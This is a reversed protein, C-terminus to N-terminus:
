QLSRVVVNDFEAKCNNTQLAIKGSKMNPDINGEVVKVEDVYFELKSDTMVAKLKYTKGIEFAPADEKKILTSSGTNIRKNITYEADGSYFTSYALAYRKNENEFATLIAISSNETSPRGPNREIIKVDAEVSYNSWSAEGAYTICTWDRPSQYAKSTQNVTWAAGTAIAWGDANGDDFNDEFLIGSPPPTPEPTSTPPPTPIVDPIEPPSKVIINDYEAICNNTQLGIMGSKLNPDINGEVVKVGDVYFELKSDTMVATLNYTRGVEFAPADERKIFTSSETDIRKNISYEADGSYFTSYALAYRTKYDRFAVLIGISSTATAGGASSEPNKELIKVDASVSYNSWSPDGAYQIQTYSIPSQYAKTDPNVTWPQGFATQFGGNTGDDFNHQYLVGIPPTPKPIALGVENSLTTLKNLSEWLFLKAYCDTVDSPLDAQATINNDGPVLESQTSLGCSYLKNNKYVALILKAPKNSETNNTISVDATMFNSQPLKDISGDIENGDADKFTTNNIELDKKQTSITHNDVIFQNPAPARLILKGVDDMSPAGTRFSYGSAIKTPSGGEPTVYVDYKQQELDIVTKIHYMKNPEYNILTDYQYQGGNRVDIYGGPGMRIATTYQNFDTPSQSSDVYILLGDIPKSNPKMDCEAVVIGVNNAGLNYVNGEVTPTLTEAYTPLTFGPNLCLLCVVMLISIIRKKKM